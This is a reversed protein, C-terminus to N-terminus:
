EPFRFVTSCFGENRLYCLCSICITENLNKLPPQNQRQGLFNLSIEDLCVPHVFRICTGGIRLNRYQGLPNLIKRIMKIIM